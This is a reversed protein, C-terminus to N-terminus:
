VHELKLAHQANASAAMLPCGGCRSALSCPPEVREASAALVAELEGWLVGQRRENVRVRVQEGPLGGHVFVVGESTEVVSAGAQTVDRVVGELPMRAVSGSGGRRQPKAM